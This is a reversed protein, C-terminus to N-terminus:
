YACIVKQKKRDEVQWNQKYEVVGASIVKSNNDIILQYGNATKVLPNKLMTVNGATASLNKRGSRIVKMTVDNGTYPTGDEQMFYIDANGDKLANADVAWIKGPASFTALVSDKLVCNEDDTVKSRAYILIEDGSIFCSDILSKRIRSVIKGARINVNKLTAGINKYAGSM